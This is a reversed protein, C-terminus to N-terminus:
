INFKKITALTGHPPHPQGNYIRYIRCTAKVPDVSTPLIIWAWAALVRLLTVRSSPPLDGLMTSLTLTCEDKHLRRDNLPDFLKTQELRQKVCVRGGVGEWVWVM